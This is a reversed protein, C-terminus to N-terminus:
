SPETYRTPAALASQSRYVRDLLLGAAIPPLGNVDKRIPILLDPFYSIILPTEELLLRQMEGAVSRQSQLDLAKVYRPVLADYAAHSFHAANWSAHSLLSNELLTNPV